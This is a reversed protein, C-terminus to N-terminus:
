RGLVRNAAGPGYKEDFDKTAEATPNEELYTIHAQPITAGAKGITRVRAALETPIVSNKTRLNEYYLKTEMNIAKRLEGLKKKIEEPNDRYPDPIFPALRKMEHISVAAGSRDKIILSGINAINARAVAGDPDLKNLLAAGADPALGAVWGAVSNGTKISPNADLQAATDDFKQLSTLATNVGEIEGKDLAKQAQGAVPTATRGKPPEDTMTFTPPPLYHLDFGPVDTLQGNADRTQHPNTLIQHAARYEPSAFFADDPKKGAAQNIVNWARAPTMPKGAAEETELKRRKLELAEEAIRAREAATNALETNRQTQLDLKQRAIDTTDAGQIIKAVADVDGSDMAAKLAFARSPDLKAVAAQFEPSKAYEALKKQQDVKMKGTAVQQGRLAQQAAASRYQMMESPIDGIAGGMQAIMQNRQAPMNEGGAAVGLLGAKILGSWIPQRRDAQTQGFEDKTADDALLGDFLAM